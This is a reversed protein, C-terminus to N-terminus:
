RTLLASQHRSSSDNARNTFLKAIIRSLEGQRFPKSLYDDMGASLSQEKDEIMALATLAVILTHLGNKQEKERIKRTAQLGNMKPMQVDMLILDFPEREFIKLTELGIKAVGVKHGLNELLRVAVKRNFMQDEALLIELPAISDAAQLTEDAASAPQQSARGFKATFEFTSGEGPVSQVSITGSM